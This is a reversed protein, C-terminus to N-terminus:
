RYKKFCLACAIDCHKSIVQIRRLENRMDLCYESRSRFWKESRVIESPPCSKRRTQAVKYRFKWRANRVRRANTIGRLLTVCGPIFTYNVPKRSLNIPTELFCRPRVSSRPELFSFPFFLFFLSFFTAFYMILPFFARSDAKPSAIRSRRYKFRWRSMCWRRFEGSRARGSPPLRPFVFINDGPAFLSADRNVLSLSLYLAIFCVVHKCIM